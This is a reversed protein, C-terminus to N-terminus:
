AVRVVFIDVYGTFNSSAQVTVSSVSKDAVFVNVNATENEGNQERAIAMVQYSTDVFPAEFTFVGSSSNNFYVAGVEIALDKDGMYTTRVPSRIFPYRKSYRNKDILTARLSGLIHRKARFIPFSVKLIM